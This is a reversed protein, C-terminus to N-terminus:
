QGRDNCLHRPTFFYLKEKEEKERDKAFLVLVFINEIRHQGLEKGL